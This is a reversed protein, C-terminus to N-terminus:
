NATRAASARVLAEYLDLYTKAVLEIDYSTRVREIAALRMRSFYEADTALRKMTATLASEDGVPVLVGADGQDLVERNPPIDNAVCALGSAMAELLANSLGERRSPLVFCDAWRLWAEPEQQGPLAVRASSRLKAVCAETENFLDGAGVIALSVEQTESALQDFAKLLTGVDRNDNRSLRGLYLFRRATQRAGSTHHSALLAVGNPIKRIDRPKVGACLLGDRVSETTAVWTLGCSRLLWAVLPGSLGAARVEGFDSMTDAVAAKCLAPTRTARAALAAGAVQLSGIHCHLVDYGDSLQRAVARTVQWLIFPVNLLGIGSMSWRDALNKLRFRRVLMGDSNEAMPSEADLLPTLITVSCGQRVLERALKEAQREAGGIAPRFQPCYM